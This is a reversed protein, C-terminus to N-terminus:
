AKQLLAAYAGDAQEKHPLALYDRVLSFEPHRSLFADVTQRDEQGDISCTSYVLRGGPRVAAAAQELIAAQLQSLRSFEGPELRWRADM